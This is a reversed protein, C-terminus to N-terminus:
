KSLDLASLLAIASGGLDTQRLFGNFHKKVILVFTVLAKPVPWDEGFVVQLHLPKPSVQYLAVVDKKGKQPSLPAAVFYQNTFVKPKGSTEEMKDDMFTCFVHLLLQADTPLAPTWPGGVWRGGDNWNFGQMHTSSALDHIRQVVYPVCTSGPVSVWKLLGVSELKSSLEAAHEATGIRHTCTREVRALKANVHRLFKQVFWKRLQETMRAMAADDIGLSEMHKQATLAESERKTTDAPPRPAPQYPFGGNSILPSAMEAQAMYAMSGAQPQLYMSRYDQMGAGLEAPFAMESPAASPQGYYAGMPQQYQQLQQYQQYQQQQQQQQLAVTAGPAYSSAFNPADPAALPAPPPGAPSPPAMSRDLFTRLTGPDRIVDDGDVDNGLSIRHRGSARRAPSRQAGAYRVPSAAGFDVPAAVAVAGTAGTVPSPAFHSPSQPSPRSLAHPLADPRREPTAAVAPLRATAAFACVSASPDIPAEASSVRRALAWLVVAVLPSLAAVCAPGGYFYAAYMSVLALFAPVALPSKRVVMPPVVVAAAIYLARHGLLAWLVALVAFLLSVREFASPSPFVRVLFPLHLADSAARLVGRRYTRGYSQAQPSSWQRLTPEM